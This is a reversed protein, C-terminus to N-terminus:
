KHSSLFIPAFNLKTAPRCYNLPCSNLPAGTFAKSKLPPAAKIIAPRIELPLSTKLAYLMNVPIRFISSRKLNSPYINLASYLLLLFFIEWAINQQMKAYYTLCKHHHFHFEPKNAMANCIGVQLCFVPFAPNEKLRNPM